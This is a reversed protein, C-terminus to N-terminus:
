HVRRKIREGRAWDEYTRIFAKFLEDCVCLFVEAM